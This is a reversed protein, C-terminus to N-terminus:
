YRSVDVGYYIRADDPLQRFNDIRSNELAFIYALILFTIKDSIIFEYIEQKM